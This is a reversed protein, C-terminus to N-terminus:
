RTMVMSSTRSVARLPRALHPPTDHIHSIMSVCTHRWRCLGATQTDMCLWQVFWLPLVHAPRSYCSMPQDRGQKRPVHSQPSTKIAAQSPWVKATFPSVSAALEGVPTFFGHVEVPDGPNGKQPASSRDGINGTWAADTKKWSWLGLAALLAASIATTAAPHQSIVEPVSWDSPPM